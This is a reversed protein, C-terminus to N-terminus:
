WIISILDGFYNWPELNWTGLDLASTTHTPKNANTLELDMRFDMIRFDM